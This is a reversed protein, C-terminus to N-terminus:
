FYNVGFNNVGFSTLGLIRFLESIKGKWLISELGLIKMGFKKGFHLNNKLGRNFFPFIAFFVGTYLVGLKESFQQPLIGVGLFNDLFKSKSQPARM